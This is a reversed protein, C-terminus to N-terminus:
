SNFRVGKGGPRTDGTEVFQVGAVEFAEQIARLTSTRTDRVGGEFNKITALSAGSREALEKQTWALLGRAARVQAADIMAEQYVAQPKHALM